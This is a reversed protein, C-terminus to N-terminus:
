LQVGEKELTNRLSRRLRFMRQALKSPSLNQEAALDQLATGYWYRRVFLVRNERELSRLWDSIIRCLEQDELEGEVTKPAPVCDELESLLATIGDYRKQAHDQEWRNLALNRVVKGMWAGLKEPRQPPIANWAQHYADNICEEADEATTLIGKAVSRCLAGYKQATETIASEDRKWYLDIIQADDM